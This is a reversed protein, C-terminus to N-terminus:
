WRLRLIRRSLCSGIQIRSSRTKEGEILATMDGSVMVCDYKEGNADLEVDIECYGPPVDLPRYRVGDLELVTIDEEKESFLRPATKGARHLPRVVDKRMSSQLIEKVKQTRYQEGWIADRSTRCKRPTPM